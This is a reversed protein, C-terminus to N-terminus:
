LWVRLMTLSVDLVMFYDNRLDATRELTKTVSAFTSDVTQAALVSNWWSQVVQQSKVRRVETRLLWM